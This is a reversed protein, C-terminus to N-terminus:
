AGPRWWLCQGRNLANSMADKMSWGSETLKDVKSKYQNPM